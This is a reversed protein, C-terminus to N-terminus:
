KPDVTFEYNGEVVHGDTSLVRYRVIYKGPTLEPSEMALERPKEPTGISGEGLVKGEANEVTLKSYKPEVGGGFRLKITKPSTAVHDKSSPTAEVLFSHALVPTAAVLAAFLGGALFRSVRRSVTVMGKM